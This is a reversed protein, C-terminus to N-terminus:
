TRARAARFLPDCRSRFQGLLFAGPQGEGCLPCPIGQIFERYFDAVSRPYLPVFKTLGDSTRIALNHDLFDFEIDFARNGQPIASTSLGRASVYLPVEWWHNVHPSLATKVKGVIQTWMHLTAYTDKWEELPLAPWLEEQEVPKARQAAPKM